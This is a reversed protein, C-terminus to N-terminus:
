EKSKLASVLDVRDSDRKVLWGSAIAAVIVAIGAAGFNAPSYEAPIQYIDTSFGEAIAISLYYGLLAGLPLAAFTVVALEGLLVFAAESKTFGIVRLSALDREREAYAIRATNYVIGFTIVAAILVMIYRTAGAGTDMLRQFAELSDQKLSIGAVAPMNKIATYVSESQSKDLSLYAGSVRGPEKLIRNLSEIDMYTPSGLLTESIGSVPIQVTPRRGERVEVTLMDGPAIHLIKAIPKSLVIGNKRLAIPKKKGDLARSLQPNEVLGSIAGRYDYRGNRFVVPVSRFPEVFTVGEVHQLDFVTKSSMPNIFIVTADSRDLVTFTLDLTQDFGAMVSIMAVSLSMGTAIGVVAGAMRGWQRYVRRLVMRSPQDLRNKMWNSFGKARSYDAPAPPRMAVAPTLAFVSRLVLLGGLVATGTSVLLGIAFASPEIQFVIFPFKFFNQYFAALSRGAAIGMISGAIAGGIAIILVLKLYHLGVERSTYGFAKLLGIQERESQVIRSVVIYLLFAAVAMFVPPVGTASARLGSIEESIFRNSSHDELGYAGLGGYSDLMRDVANLVAPLHADPGLSLLAENFAGDMDYAASLAAKSMWIVAFRGDDPALEGPATTYLFEPSEAIGVIQFRRRAGNMTAYLADGPVLNRANAFGKLLLIEDVHESNLMRGSALYVANLRPSGFDPLSVAQARLPIDVDPLDILADGTVRGEVAAVNPIAALKGLIREPSRKVPAFVEALRYREYYARRTEDLTNVLGQMMVLMMVGLSIVLGIAIAQGKIRSLDRLLKRDLPAVM